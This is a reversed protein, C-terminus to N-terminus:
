PSVQGRSEWCRIELIFCRTCASTKTLPWRHHDAHFGEWIIIQMCLCRSESMCSLIERMLSTRTQRKTVKKNQDRFMLLYSYLIKPEHILPRTRWKRNKVMFNNLAQFQTMIQFVLWWKTLSCLTDFFSHCCLFPCLIEPGVFPSMQFFLGDM